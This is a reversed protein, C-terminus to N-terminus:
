PVVIEEFQLGDVLTYFRDADAGGVVGGCNGEGILLDDVFNGDVIEGHIHPELQHQLHHLQEQQQHQDDHYLQEHQHDHHQDQLQHQQQQQQHHQQEGYADDDVNDDEDFPVTGEDHVLEGNCDCKGGRLCDAATWCDDDVLLVGDINGSFDHAHTTTTEVAVVVVNSTNATTVITHQLEPVTTISADISSLPPPSASCRSFNGGGDGYSRDVRGFENSCCNSASDASDATGGATVGGGGSPVIVCQRSVVSSIM